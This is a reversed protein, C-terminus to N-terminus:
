NNSGRQRPPPAMPPPGGPMGGGFGPPPPMGRGHRMMGKLFDGDTAFVFSGDPSQSVHAQDGAQLDGLEAQKGNRLVKADSPVDITVTKYTADKTGETITLQDGSVSDVKGSDQTITIFDDGAKNPVVMESHVPPGGIPHEGAGRLLKGGPPPGPFKGRPGAPPRTGNKTSTPAAAGTAIGIMAAVTACIAAAAAVQTFRSRKM